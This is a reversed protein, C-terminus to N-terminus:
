TSTGPASPTSSPRPPKAAVEFADRMAEPLTPRIAKCRDRYALLYDQGAARAVSTDLYASLVGTAPPPTARLTDVLGPLALPDLLALEHHTTAM